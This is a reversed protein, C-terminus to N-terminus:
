APSIRGEWAEAGVLAYARHLPGGGALDILLLRASKCAAAFVIALAPVQVKSADGAISSREAQRFGEHLRACATQFLSAVRLTAARTCRADEGEAGTPWLKM